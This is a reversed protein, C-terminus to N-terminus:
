IFSNIMSAADALRFDCALPDIRAIAIGVSLTLVDVDTEDVVHHRVV